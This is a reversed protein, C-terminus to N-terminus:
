EADDNEEERALYPLPMDEPNIPEAIRVRHIPVNNAKAWAEVWEWMAKRAEAQDEM